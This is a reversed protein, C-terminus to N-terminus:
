KEEYNNNIKDEESTNTRDEESTKARDEKGNSYFKRILEEERKVAVYDDMSGTSDPPINRFPCSGSLSKVTLVPQFICNGNNEQNAM